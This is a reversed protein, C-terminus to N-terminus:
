LVNGLDIFSISQQGSIQQLINNISRTKELLTVMVTGGYIWVFIVM